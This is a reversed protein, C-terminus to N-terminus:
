QKLYVRINQWSGTANGATKETMIVEFHHLFDDDSDNLCDEGFCAKIKTAAGAWNDIGAGDDVDCDFNTHGEGQDEVVGIWNSDTNLVVHEDSDIGGCDNGNADAGLFAKIRDIDGMRIDLPIQEQDLFFRVYGTQEEVCPNNPNEPCHLAICDKYINRCLGNEYAIYDPEGTYSTEEFCQRTDINFEVGNKLIEETLELQNDINADTTCFDNKGIDDYDKGICCVKKKGGKTLDIQLVGRINKDAYKSIARKQKSTLFIAYENDDDKPFIGPYGPYSAIEAGNLEYVKMRFAVRDIKFVSNFWAGYAILFKDIPKCCIHTQKYKPLPCHGKECMWGELGGAAWKDFESKTGANKCIGDNLVQITCDGLEAPVLPDGLKIGELRTLSPSIFNLITYSGVALGIGILASIIRAKAQGVKPANGAATMWQFGGVMIMVVGIIVIAKIAWDFFTKLYEAFSTKSVPIIEGPKFKSDPIQVQPKFKLPPSIDQALVPVAVLSFSIIATILLILTKKYNM